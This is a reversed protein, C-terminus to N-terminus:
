KLLMLNPHPQTHKHGYIPMGIPELLLQFYHLKIKIITSNLTANIWAYM